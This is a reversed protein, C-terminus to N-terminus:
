ICQLKCFAPLEVGSFKMEKQKKKKEIGSAVGASV